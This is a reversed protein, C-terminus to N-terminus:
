ALQEVVFWTDFMFSGTLVASLAVPTSTNLFFESSEASTLHPGGTVAFGIGQGAADTFTGGFSVSNTAPDGTIGAAAITIRFLGSSSPTFTDTFGASAATHVSTFVIQPACFPM